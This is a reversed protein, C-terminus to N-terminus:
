GAATGTATATCSAEAPSEAKASRMLYALSPKQACLAPVSECEAPARVRALGEPLPFFKLFRINKQRGVSFDNVCRAFFLIIHYASKM